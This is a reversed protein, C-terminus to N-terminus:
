QIAQRQGSRSATDIADLLRALRVACNFDPVTRSGTAIDDALRLYAESVNVPADVLDPVSLEPAPEAAFSTELRIAGCCCLM